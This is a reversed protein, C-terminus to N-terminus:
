CLEIVAVTTIVRAALICFFVSKQVMDGFSRVRIFFVVKATKGASFFHKEQVILESLQTKLVQSGADPTKRLKNRYLAVLSPSLFRGASAQSSNCHM